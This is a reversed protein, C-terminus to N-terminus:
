EWSNINWGPVSSRKLHSYVLDDVQSQSFEETKMKILTCLFINVFKCCNCLAVYAHMNSLVDNLYSKFPLYTLHFSIKKRKSSSANGGWLVFCFLVFLLDFFASFISLRAHAGWIKTTEMDICNHKYMWNSFAVSM